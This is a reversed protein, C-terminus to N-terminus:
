RSITEVTSELSGIQESILQMTLDLKDISNNLDFIHEDISELETVINNLNSMQENISMLYQNNGYLLWETVTIGHESLNNKMSILEILM